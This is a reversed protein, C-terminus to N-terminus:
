DLVRAARNIVGNEIPDIYSRMTTAPNAHGLVKQIDLLDFYHAGDDSVARHLIGAATRRLDHPSMHGLGAEDARAAVIERISCPQKFRNGWSVNGIAPGTKQRCVVPDSSRLPRQLAEVYRDLYDDLLRLFSPGIAIKRARNKKGIWQIVPESGFQLDSVVLRIIETVRMGALGLRLVLEDRIGVDSDDCTALLKGYAEDHTLWRAPYIGQLKGYLPPTARLPNDRNGLEEVLAPDAEGQRVCWRLFTRARALRGRRTNNARAQAVWQNM